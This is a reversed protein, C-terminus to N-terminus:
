GPLRTGAQLARAIAALAEQVTTTALPVTAGPAAEPLGHAADPTIWGVVAMDGPYGQAGTKLPPLLWRGDEYRLTLRELHDALTPGNTFLPVNAQFVTAEFGQPTREVGLVIATHFGGPGKAALIAGPGPPTLGGNLGAAYGPIPRSADALGLIEPQLDHQVKFAAELTPGLAGLKARREQFYRLVFEMCQEVTPAGQANKFFPSVDAPLIAADPAIARAVPVVVGQDMAVRGHVLGAVLEKASVRGDLDKDLLKVAEAAVHNPKPDGLAERAGALLRAGAGRRDGVTGRAILEAVEAALSPDLAPVVQIADRALLDLAAKGANGSAATAIATAVAVVTQRRALPGEGRALVQGLLPHVGPEAALTRLAPVYADAWAAQVAPTAQAQFALYAQGLSAITQQAPQHATLRAGQLAVQLHRETGPGTRAADVLVVAPHLRPETAALLRVLDLAAQKTALPAPLAAETVAKLGAAAAEPPKAAAIAALAGRVLEGHVPSTKAHRALVEALGTRKLLMDAQYAPVIPAREVARRLPTLVASSVLKEAISLM